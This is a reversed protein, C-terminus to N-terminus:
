PNRRRYWENWFAEYGRQAFADYPKKRSCQAYYSEVKDAFRYVERRYVDMPVFTENGSDVTIIVGDNLHRVEWDTGFPCGIIEVESLDDNALLFHGCCPILQEENGPIHDETLTRLFRLASASVTGTDEILDNGINVTVHGHLCLDESDHGPECIWAFDTVEIRFM